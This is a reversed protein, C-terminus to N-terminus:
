DTRTYKDYFTNHKKRFTPIDAAHLISCETIYVSKNFEIVSM